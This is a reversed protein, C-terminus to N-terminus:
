TRLATGCQRCFRDASSAQTGCNHCFVPSADVPLEDEASSPSTRHRPRAPRDIPRNRLFYVAGGVILSVGAILLIWPLIDGVEIGAGAAPSPTALGVLPAAADVSLQPTDKRYSFSIPPRDTASLAGLDVLHYSLGRLDTSRSTAAPDVQMDQAGVPQQIEYAFDGTALGGPWTFSFQRLADAAPLPLYFEIQVETGEAAVEIVDAQDGEIRGYSANVLEGNDALFAAATIDPADPPISLRLQTPLSAAAPLVVRYIVLVDSRDYEPWLSVKISEVETSGQAAASPSPIAAALVAAVLVMGRLARLQPLNM